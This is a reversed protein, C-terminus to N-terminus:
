RGDAVRSMIINVTEQTLGVEHTEKPRGFCYAMYTKIADMDGALAKKELQAFVAKAKEPKLLTELLKTKDSAGRRSKKGAQRATETESSFPM